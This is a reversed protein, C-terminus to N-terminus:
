DEKYMYVFFYDYSYRAISLHLLVHFLKRLEVTAACRYGNIESSIVTNTYKEIIGIWNQMASAHKDYRNM